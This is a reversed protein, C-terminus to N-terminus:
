EKKSVNVKDSMSRKGAKAGIISVIVSLVWGGCIIMWLSTEWFTPEIIAAIIGVANCILPVYWISKPNWKVIFYCGLVVLLDFIIYALASGINEDIKILEGLGEGVGFLVIITVILWLIALAWSPTTAIFSSSKRTKM